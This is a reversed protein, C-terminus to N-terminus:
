ASPKTYICYTKAIMDHLGQKKDNFAVVLCSILLIGSTIYSYAQPIIEKQVTAVEVMGTAYQFDPNTFLIITTFISVVQGILWPIYRVWAQSFTLKEFETNVVKIKVAMKGLTASYRFEMLPKYAIMILTIILQLPLNKLSYLNYLNLGVLPLYVLFDILSAGVRIWFGAWKTEDTTTDTPSVLNNDLINNEM